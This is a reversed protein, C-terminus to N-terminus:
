NKKNLFKKLKGLGKEDSKMYNSKYLVKTKEGPIEDPDVEAIYNEDLIDQVVKNTAKKNKKINKLVMKYMSKAIKKAVEDSSINETKSLKSVEKKILHRKKM